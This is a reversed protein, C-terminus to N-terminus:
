EEHKNMEEIMQRMYSDSQRDLEKSHRESWDDNSLKFIIEVCELCTFLYKTPPNQKGCYKCKVTQM